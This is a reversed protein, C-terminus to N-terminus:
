SITKQQCLNSIEDAIQGKTKGKNNIGLAEAIGILLEADTRQAPQSSSMGERYAQQLESSMKGLTRAFNPADKTGRTLVYLGVAGLAAIGLLDDLGL